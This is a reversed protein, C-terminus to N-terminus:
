RSAALFIILYDSELWAVVEEPSDGPTLRAESKPLDPNQNTKLCKQLGLHAPTLVLLIRGELSDLQSHLHHLSYTLSISPYGVGQHLVVIESKYMQTCPM